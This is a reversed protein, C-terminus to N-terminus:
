PTAFLDILFAVRELVPQVIRFRFDDVVDEGLAAARPQIRPQRRQLHPGDFALARRGGAHQLHELFLLLLEGCSSRSVSLRPHRGVDGGDVTLSGGGAHLEDHDFYCDTRNTSRVDLVREGTPRERDSAAGCAPIASRGARKRSRAVALALM